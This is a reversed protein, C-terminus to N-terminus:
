EPLDPLIMGPTPDMTAQTVIGAMSDTAVNAPTTAQAAATKDLIPPSNAQNGDVKEKEKQQEQIKLKLGRMRALSDSIIPSVLIMHSDGNTNKFALKPWLRNFIEAYLIILFSKTDTEQKAVDKTGIIGMVDEPTAEGVTAKAAAAMSKPLVNKLMAQSHEGHLSDHIIQEIDLMAQVEKPVNEKFYDVIRKENHQLVEMIIKTFDANIEKWKPDDLSELQHALDTAKALKASNAKIKDSQIELVSKGGNNDKRQKAVYRWWTTAGATGVAYTLPWGWNTLRKWGLAKIDNAIQQYSIACAEKATSKLKEPSPEPYPAREGLPSNRQFANRDADYRLTGQHDNVSLHKNEFEIIANFAEAVKKGTQKVKADKGKTKQGNQAEKLAQNYDEAAKQLAALRDAHRAEARKIAEALEKNKRSLAITDKITEIAGGAVSPVTRTLLGAALLFSVWYSIEDSDNSEGELLKEFRSARVDIADFPPEIIDSEEAWTRAPVHLCTLLLALALWGSLFKRGKDM